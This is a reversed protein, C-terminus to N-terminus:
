ARVYCTGEWVELNEILVEGTTLQRTENLVNEHNRVGNLADESNRAEIIIWGYASRYRYRKYPAEKALREGVEKALREGVQQYIPDGGGKGYERYIVENKNM